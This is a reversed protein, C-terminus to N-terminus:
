NKFYIAIIQNNYFSINQFIMKDINCVSEWGFCCSVWNNTAPCFDLDRCRESQQKEGYENRVYFHRGPRRFFQNGKVALFHGCFREFVLVQFM